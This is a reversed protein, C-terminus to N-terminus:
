KVLGTLTIKATSKELDPDHVMTIKDLFKTSDDEIGGWRRFADLAFKVALISNDLDYRYNSACRVNLTKLVVKDYTDLQESVEAAFKDKAKKRIMWHGGAYFQNLSPVKGITIEYTVLRPQVWM